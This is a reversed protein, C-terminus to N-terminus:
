DPLGLLRRQREWELPLTGIQRLRRATLEVPQRGTLIAEVIDPALFALQLTRGVDSAHTGDRAAIERISAIKGATLEQLWRHAKAVLDILYQDLAVVARETAHMILKAEVGRRKPDIPVTVDILGDAHASNNPETGAVLDWLGSRKFEIRM